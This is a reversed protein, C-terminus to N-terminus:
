LFIVYKNGISAKHMEYPPIYDLLTLIRAVTEHSEVLIPPDLQNEYMASHYLQLFVFSPSIGSKPSEKSRQSYTQRLIDLRPKRTPSMVSITSSRDRKRAASAINQDSQTLKEM